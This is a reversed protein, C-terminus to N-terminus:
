AEREPGTTQDVGYSPVLTGGEEEWTGWHVGERYHPGCGDDGAECCDEDADEAPDDDELDPDGDAHDLAAIAVEAIFEVEHRPLRQLYAAILPAFPLPPVSHM